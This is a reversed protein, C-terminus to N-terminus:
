VVSDDRGDPASPDIAVSDDQRFGPDQDSYSEQKRLFSV